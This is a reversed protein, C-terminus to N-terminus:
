QCCKQDCTLKVTCYLKSRPSGIPILDGPTDMLDVIFNPKMYKIPYVTSRDDRPSSIEKTKYKDDDHLRIDSQYLESPAFIITESRYEANGNLRASSLREENAVDIQAFRM